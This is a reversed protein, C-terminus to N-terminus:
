FLDSSEPWATPCVGMKLKGPPMYDPSSRAQNMLEGQSM